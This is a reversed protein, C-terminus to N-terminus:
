SSAQKGDSFSRDGLFCCVFLLGVASRVNLVVVGDRIVLTM